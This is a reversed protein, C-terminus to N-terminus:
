DSVREKRRPSLLEAVIIERIVLAATGVRCKTLNALWEMLVSVVQECFTDYARRMTVGLDIQAILMVM